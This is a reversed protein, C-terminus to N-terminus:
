RVDQCDLKLIQTKGSVLKCDVSEILFTFIGINLDLNSLSSSKVRLKVVHDCIEVESYGQVLRLLCVLEKPLGHLSGSSVGPFLDKKVGVYVPSNAIRGSEGYM